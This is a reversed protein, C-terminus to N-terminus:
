QVWAVVMDNDEKRTAVMRGEIEIAEGIIATAVLRTPAGQLGTGRAKAVAEKACWLRTLWEDRDSAPLLGAEQEDLTMTEFDATRPEVAEIDVGPTRGIEARAVAVGRSHAISVRVDLDSGGVAVLPRGQDDNTVEVEVPFLPGHGHEWLLARVADKAAIRGALWDRRRRPGLAAFARREEAGLYRHALHENSTVPIEGLDVQMVGDERHSALTSTQPSRLVAWFRHDLDLRVNRWGTITVYPRDGVRLHLDATLFRDGVDTVVVACDITEGPAPDPGHFALHEIGVPMALWNRADRRELVEMAWYGLLQGAADLLGGRASVNTLVGSIGTDWIRDLSQVGQFAPGHFMWRDRYLTEGSERPAAATAPVEPWAGAPAWDSGLVAVASFWDGVTVEVRDPARETMTVSAEVPPDAVLWRYAGVQEMAVVHRGPVLSRVDEAAVIVSTTMPVVPYRDELTQWGEPQAFFCHDVIEPLTQVDYRRVFSRPGVPAATRGPNTTVANLVADHARRVARLTEDFEAVVAAGTGRAPLPDDPAASSTVLATLAPRLLPAGLRLDTPRSMPTPEDLGVRALDVDAGEVWAAAIVLRLQDIGSRRTSVTPLAVHPRTGLTDDVFSTLSGVGVQVFVRVGHAYLAELVGRFRVPEVLHQALLSRVEEPDDPYPRQTTASWMPVRAPHLRLRAWREHFQVLFPEFQPSHFGGHPFELVQGFIGSARARRVVDEVSAEPGAILVQHPCNDVAVVVDDHGELLAPTDDAGCGLAGFRVGPVELDGPPVAMLEEADEISVIGSRVLGTWEGISHGAIVDPDLRVEHLARALLESTRYVSRGRRELDAADVDVPDWGFHEAVGDVRPDFTAEVGPFLFALPAGDAFFGRPAFFIGDRGPRRQAHQVVERAKALREPSPDSIAIRWSGADTRARAPDDLAALLDAAGSGSACLIPTPADGPQRSKRRRSRTRTPAPSEIVVHANIGGFGFANVGAVRREAPWPEAAGIVRLGAPELGPVPNTCHLTPPLVGDHVARTAKILGAIGAAPMAHGIMSKVSGIVIPESPPDARLFETITDIETADGVRTATGHAEILGLDARRVGTDAWARELARLQGSSQPAMLAAGRGDSAVGSGRVVAYVRDGDRAADELRKLVVIGVGEGILLGDADQDFPRICGSASLAGLRTFVSWLTIDHCLHVGGALVLDATGNALQTCAEDVAVLSSACAADITYASGGFDLRHAIRSAALNPVLGIADNPDALGAAGTLADIVEGRRADDLDPVLARLVRDVQAPVMTQQALRALGASLYGGRGLIVSARDRDFERDHYGADALARVAVDLALLQDPEAGPVAAPMLGHALPDFSAFEDVFGGRRCRLVPPRLSGEFYDPDLRGSPVDGIADEGRRINDWFRRANPAGPFICEMGIIAVPPRM